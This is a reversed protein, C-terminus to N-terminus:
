EQTSGSWRTLDGSEFGDSFLDISPPVFAAALAVYPGQYGISNETIEWSVATWM